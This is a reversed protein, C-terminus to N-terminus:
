ELSTTSHGARSRKRRNNLPPDNALISKGTPTRMQTAAWANSAGALTRQRVPSLPDDTLFSSAFDTEPSIDPFIESYAPFEVVGSGPADPMIDALRSPALVLSTRARLIDSQLQTTQQFALLKLIAISDEPRWPAISNTFLFFEPAGRGLAQRNIEAIWANVGASYAELAALAAKSQASMSANSSNALDLRRMLDDIPVTREGFVESLRGQVTRRFITMQWLRDQAHAFGLGFFVDNDNQGFIHPVAMNTRVIEVPESVGDLQYSAAYNPLSRNALWYVLVVSTLSLLSIGVFARFLLRYLREM